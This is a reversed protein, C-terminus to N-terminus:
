RVDMLQPELDYIRVPRHVGKLVIEDVLQSYLELHEVARVTRESVLIQGGTAQASLRSALNVHNGLVTYDSRSSSGIDGVTVWGTSVGMGVEFPEEYRRAWRAGFEATRERMALAMRVAREAHDDQRVPDGFFVMVADGIYKDLTGGHEFVLDTMASLYLNLEEVLEEPEMRESVETFNRIDSFFVTLLKRSSELHLEADGELVSDAIQPSLYRRLRSARELEVVKEDVMGQLDENLLALDGYLKSLQESTRNLNTSLRGFEDRNPVEVRQDFDGDAIQGLARDVRTVPRILSWSLVAGLALAGILSAAAFVIVATTLFRKDGAFEAEAAAVRAASVGIYDNLDDELLHSIDHELTLHLRLAEDVAGEDFREQVDLGVDDYWDTNAAIRDFLDASPPISIARVADLNMRFDAKARAIKGEWELIEEPETVLLQMARFHSQGTIDYIMEQALDQQETLTGLRDVKDNVRELVAVSLVGLGLLLVAIVMFGTLMKHHISMNIRAVRDVMPRLMPRFPGGGIEADSESGATTVDNAM